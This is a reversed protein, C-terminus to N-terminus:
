RRRGIRWGCSRPDASRLGDAMLRLLVARGARGLGEVEPMAAGAGSCMADVEDRTTEQAVVQVPRGTRPDVSIVGAM